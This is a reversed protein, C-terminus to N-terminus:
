DQGRRTEEFEQRVLMRLSYHVELVLVSHAFIDHRQTVSQDITTEEFATCAVDSSSLEIKRVHFCEFLVM